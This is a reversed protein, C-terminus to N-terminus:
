CIFNEAVVVGEFFPFEVWIFVEERSTEETLVSMSGEKVLLRSPDQEFKPVVQPPQWHTHWM